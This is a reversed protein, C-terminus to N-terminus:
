GLGERLVADFPTDSLEPLDNAGITGHALELARHHSIKHKKFARMVAAALAPSVGREPVDSLVSAELEVHEVHTPRADRLAECQEHTLHGLRHLQPTAATWSVGFTAAITIAAERPTLGRQRLREWARAVDDRPMLLHIAFANVAREADDDLALHWDVAYADAMLHHGLEHALTFRRRGSTRDGNILAVGRTADLPLYLGDPASEGLGRVVTHLGFWDAVSMLDRLPGDGFEPAEALRSRVELGIREGDAVEAVDVAPRWSEPDRMVGLSALFTVERAMRDLEGEASCEAAAGPAQRFSAVAPLDGTTFWALSRGLLEGLRVLELASVARTGAEIKSVATRDLGLGDALAAQNLGAVRRARRVRAGLERRTAEADDM